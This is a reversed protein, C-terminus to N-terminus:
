DYYGTMTNAPNMEHLGGIKFLVDKYEEPVDDKNISHLNAGDFANAYHRNWGGCHSRLICDSCPQGQVAVSEGMAIAPSLVRQPDAHYFGNDWEFPDFLVYRANTVYKWYKPELHCMPFYRLTFPVERKLLYDMAKQVYPKLEEPHVAVTRCLDKDQWHYHPLFNLLSVHFAGQACIFLMIDSLRKYNLLQLTTNTRFPLPYDRLYALLKLQRYWARPDKNNIIANLYRDHEHVSIQLHNLGRDYLYGYMDVPALGNTIIISKLNNQTIYEIIRVIDPHLTPEGQGELVIGTCGRCKAIDIESKIKDLPKHNDNHFEPSFRFYCHVCHNNCQWTVEIGAVSCPKMKKIEIAESVLFIYM